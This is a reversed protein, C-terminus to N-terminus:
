KDIKIPMKTGMNDIHCKNKIDNRRQHYRFYTEAPPYLKCMAISLIPAYRQM